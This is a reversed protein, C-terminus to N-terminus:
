DEDITLAELDLRARRGDDRRSEALLALDALLLGPIAVELADLRQLLDAAAGVAGPGDFSVRLHHREGSFTISAWPRSALVDVAVAGTFTLVNVIEVSIAEALKSAPRRTM